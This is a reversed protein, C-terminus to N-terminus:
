CTSPGDGPRRRVRGWLARADDPLGAVRRDVEEVLEASDIAGLLQEIDWADQPGGAYLKLLVLDAPRAVPVSVGDIEAAVARSAIERQWAPRGVVVDVTEGLMRTRVVGALPDDPEGCRVTVDIGAERLRAWYAADLCAPDSVLLDLDRTSRTVGHVALAAAGILAFPTDRERLL